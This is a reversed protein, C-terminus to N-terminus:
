RRRRLAEPDQLGSRTPKAEITREDTSALRRVESAPVMRRKGIMVTMLERRKIMSRLTTLGCSLEHAAREMTMVTPLGERGSIRALEARIEALQEDISKMYMGLSKM